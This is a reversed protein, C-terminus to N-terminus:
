EHIDIDPEIFEKGQQFYPEGRFLHYEEMPELPLVRSGEEEDKNSVSVQSLISAPLILASAGVRTSM